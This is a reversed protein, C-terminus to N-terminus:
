LFLVITLLIFFLGVSDLKTEMQTDIVSTAPVSNQVPRWVPVILSASGLPFSNGWHRLEVTLTVGCAAAVGPGRCM